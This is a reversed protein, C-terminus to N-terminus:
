AWTAANYKMATTFGTSTSVYQILINSGSIVASFTIGPDTGPASPGEDILSVNTGDTTYRIRGSKYQANNRNLSYTIEGFLNTAYALTLITAASAQNDALTFPTSPVTSGGGGGASFLAWTGNSTGNNMLKCLAVQGAAVTTLTTTGDALKVTLTQTSANYFEFHAGATSFTNAAPLQFTQALTGTLYQVQTSTNVLTTTAGASTVPTVQEIYGGYQLRM